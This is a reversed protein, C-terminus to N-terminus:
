FLMDPVLRRSCSLILHLLQPLMSTPPFLYLSEFTNWNISQSDVALADPHPFPSVWRPLRQNVPFAMLDVALSGAWCYVADFAPTPLTWETSLPEVRSLADAVVNLSSPVSLTQFFLGRAQFESLLAILEQRLPLSRSFCTALTYRVRENDTFVHLSLDCLGFYCVARLIARLELVNIHLLRDFPVM